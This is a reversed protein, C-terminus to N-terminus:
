TIDRFACSATFFLAQQLLLGFIYFAGSIKKRWEMVELCRSSAVLDRLIMLSTTSKMHADWSCLRSCGNCLLNIIAKRRRLCQIHGWQEGFTEFVEIDSLQPADSTCQFHDEPHSFSSARKYERLLYALLRMQDTILIFPQFPIKERSRLHNLAPIQELIPPISGNKHVLYELRSDGAPPSTLEVIIYWSTGHASNASISFFADGSPARIIGFYFWDSLFQSLQELDAYPKIDLHVGIKRLSTSQNGCVLRIKRVLSSFDFEEAISISLVEDFTHSCLTTRATTSKGQCDFLCTLSIARASLIESSSQPLPSSHDGALESPFFSFGAEGSREATFFIFLKASKPSSFDYNSAWILLHNRADANMRNPGLIVFQLRPFREVCELFNSLASLSVSKSGHLILSPHPVCTFYHIVNKWVTSPDLGGARIILPVDPEFLSGKDILEAIEEREELQVLMATLHHLVLRLQDYPAGESSSPSSSFRVPEIVYEKFYHFLVDPPIPLYPTSVSCLEPFALAFYPALHGFVVETDLNEIALLLLTKSVLSAILKPPLLLLRKSSVGSEKLLAKWGNLDDQLSLLSRKYRLESMDRQGTGILCYESFFFPHGSERLEYYCQAIALSLDYCRLFEQVTEFEDTSLASRDMFLRMSQLRSHLHAIELRSEVDGSYNLLELAVGQQESCNNIRCSFRGCTFAQTITPLMAVASDVIKGSFYTLIADFNANCTEFRSWLTILDEPSRKGLGSDAVAKLLSPLDNHAQRLPQLATHVASLNSMLDNAFKVDSTQTTVLDVKTGFDERQCFQILVSYSSIIRFLYLAHAPLNHVINSIAELTPLIDKVQLNDLDCTLRDLMHIFEQTSSSSLMTQFIPIDRALSSLETGFAILGDTATKMDALEAGKEIHKRIESINITSQSEKILAELQVLERQLASFSMSRTLNWLANLRSLTTSNTVLDNLRSCSSKIFAPLERLQISGTHLRRVDDFVFQFIQSKPTLVHQLMSILAENVGSAELQSRFEHIANSLDVVQVSDFDRRSISPLKRHVIGNFDFWEMVSSLFESQRRWEHFDDVATLMQEKITEAPFELFELLELLRSTGNQTENSLDHLYKLENISVRKEGLRIFFCSIAHKFGDRLNVAPLLLRKVLDDNGALIDCSCDFWQLFPVLKVLDRNLLFHLLFTPEGFRDFELRIFSELAHILMSCIILSAIGPRTHHDSNPDALLQVVHNFNPIFNHDESLHRLIRSLSSRVFLSTASVELSTICPDNYPLSDQLSALAKPDGDNFGSFYESLMSELHYDSDTDRELISLSWPVNVLIPRWARFLRLLELEFDVFHRVKPMGQSLFRLKTPLPEDKFLKILSPNAQTPAALSDRLDQLLEAPLLDADVSPLSGVIEKLEKRWDIRRACRNFPDVLQYYLDNFVSATSPSLLKSVIPTLAATLDCIFVVDRQVYLSVVAIFWHELHASSSCDVKSPLADKLLSHINPPLPAFLEFISILRNATICQATQHSNSGKFRSSMLTASPTADPVADLIISAFNFALSPNWTLKTRFFNVFSHLPLAPLENLRLHSAVLRAFAGAKHFSPPNWIYWSPEILITLALMLSVQQTDWSYLPTTLPLTEVLLDSIAGTFSSSVVPAPKSPDFSEFFYLWRRLLQSGLQSSASHLPIHAISSLKLYVLLFDDDAVLRDHNHIANLSQLIFIATADSM